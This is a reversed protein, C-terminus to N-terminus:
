KCLSSFDDHMSSSSGLKSLPHKPQASVELKQFKATNESFDLHEIIYKSPPLINLLGM